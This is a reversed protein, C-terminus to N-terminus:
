FDTQEVRPLAFYTIGQNNGKGYCNGFRLQVYKAGQPWMGNRGRTIFHSSIDDAGESLVILDMGGHGSKQMM